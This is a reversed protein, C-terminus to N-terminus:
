NIIANVYTFILNVIKYHIKVYVFTNVLKAILLIKTVFVVINFAKVINIKIVFATTYKVKVYVKIWKVFVIM